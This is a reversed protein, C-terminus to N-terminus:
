NGAGRSAGVTQFQPSPMSQPYFVAPCSFPSKKVAGGIRVQRWQILWRGDVLVLEDEYEGWHDVEGDRYMMFISRSIARGADVLEVQLGDLRQTLARKQSSQSPEDNSLAFETRLAEGISDHGFYIDGGKLELVGDATFTETLEKATPANGTWCTQMVTKVIQEVPESGM